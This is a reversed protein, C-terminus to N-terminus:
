VRITGRIPCVRLTKDLMFRKLATLRQQGDVVLLKDEDTADMYFSPLPIRILLSEIL